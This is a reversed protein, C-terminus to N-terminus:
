YSSSVFCFTGASNEQLYGMQVLDSLLPDLEKSSRFKSYRLIFRRKLPQGTTASQKKIWALLEETKSVTPFAEFTSELVMEYSRRAHSELYACCAAAKQVADLTIDGKVLDDAVNILHFALALSPMLSRYKSLHQILIPHDKAELKEQLSQIWDQFFAQAEPSFRFYPITYQGEYLPESEQAGHDRFKM